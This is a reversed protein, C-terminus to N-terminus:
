LIINYYLRVPGSDYIHDTVSQFMTIHHKGTPSIYRHFSLYM